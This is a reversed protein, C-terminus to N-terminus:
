WFLSEDTDPVDILGVNANYITSAALGSGGILVYLQTQARVILKDPLNIATPINQGPQVVDSDNVNVARASPAGPGTQSQGVCLAAFLNATSVAFLSTGVWVALWQLFWQRGGPPSMPNFAAAIPGSGSFGATTTTSASVVYYRGGPREFVKKIREHHHDLDQKTALDVVVDAAVALEM